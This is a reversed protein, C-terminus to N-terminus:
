ENLPTGRRQEVSLTSRESNLVFQFRPKNRPPAIAPGWWIRTLCSDLLFPDVKNKSFLRVCALFSQVFGKMDFDACLNFLSDLAIDISGSGLDDFWNEGFV